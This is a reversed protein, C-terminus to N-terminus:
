KSKIILFTTLSAISASVVIGGVIFSPEQWWATKDHGAAIEKDIFRERMKLAENCTELERLGGAIDHLEEKSFCRPDDKTEEAKVNQSGILLFIM